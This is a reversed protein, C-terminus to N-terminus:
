KLVNIVFSAPNNVAAHNAMVTAVKEMLEHQGEAKLKALTAEAKVLWNQSAEFYKTSDDVLRNRVENTLRFRQGQLDVRKKLLLFAIVAGPDSQSGM